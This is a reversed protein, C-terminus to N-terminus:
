PVRRALREATYLAVLLYVYGLGPWRKIGAGVDGDGFVFGHVVLMSVLMLVMLGQLLWVRMM